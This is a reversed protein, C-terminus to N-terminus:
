LQMITAIYIELSKLTGHATFVSLLSSINFILSKFSCIPLNFFCIVLYLISNLQCCPVHYYETTM